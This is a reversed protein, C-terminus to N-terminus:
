IAFAFFIARLAGKFFANAVLVSKANQKPATIPKLRWM